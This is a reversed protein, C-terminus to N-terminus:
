TYTHLIFNHVVSMTMMVTVEDVSLLGHSGDRESLLDSLFNVRWDEGQPIPNVVLLSTDVESLDEVGAEQCLNM